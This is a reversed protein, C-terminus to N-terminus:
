STVPFCHLVEQYPRHTSLLKICGRDTWPINLFSSGLGLCGYSIFYADVSHAIVCRLLNVGYYADCSAEAGMPAPTPTPPFLSEKEECACVCPEFKCWIQSMTVLSM